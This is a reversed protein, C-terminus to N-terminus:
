ASRIRRKRICLVSAQNYYVYLISRQKFDSATTMRAGGGGCWARERARRWFRWERVRWRPAACFFHSRCPSLCDPCHVAAPQQQQDAGRAQREARDGGGDEREHPPATLARPQSRRQENPVRGVLVRETQIIRSSTSATVSECISRPSDFAPPPTATRVALSRKLHMLQYRASRTLQPIHRHLSAPAPDLLQSAHPKSFKLRDCSQASQPPLIMSPLPPSLVLSGFSPAFAACRSRRALHTHTRLLIYPSVLFQVGHYTRHVHLFRFSHIRFSSTWPLSKQYLDLVSAAGTEGPKTTCNWGLM